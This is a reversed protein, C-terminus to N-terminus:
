KHYKINKLITFSRYIQELLIIQFLQHPFTMKSFSLLLNAKEKIKNNIGHSSGIIFNINKYMPNNIISSFLKSFELSDYQKGHIDLVINYNNQSNFFKNLNISEKELAIKIISPNDEDIIKEEKLIIIELKIFKSIKKFYNNAVSQLSKDKIDGIVILNIKM